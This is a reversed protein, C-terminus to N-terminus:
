ISRIVLSKRKDFHEFSHVVINVTIKLLLNVHAVDILHKGHM